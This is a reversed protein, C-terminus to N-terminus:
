PTGAGSARLALLAAAKRTERTSSNHTAIVSRKAINLFFALAGLAVGMPADKFKEARMLDAQYPEIDYLHKMSRTVPRYMISMLIHLNDYAGKSAMAELDVFERLILADWDPVFGYEVEGLTFRPVLEHETPEPSSMLFQLADVIKRMDKDPIGTAVDMPVGCLIEVCGCMKDVKSKGADDWLSTLAQHQGITVEDYNDPIVIRLKM